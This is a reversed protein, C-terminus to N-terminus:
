LVCRVLAVVADVPILTVPIPDVFFLPLWMM